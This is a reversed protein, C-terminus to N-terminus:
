STGMKRFPLQAYLFGGELRRNERSGARPLSEARPNKTHPRKQTHSNGRTSTEMLPWQFDLSSSAWGMPVYKSVMATKRLLRHQSGKHQNAKRSPPFKPVGVPGKRALPAFDHRNKAQHLPYIPVKKFFCASVEQEKRGERRYYPHLGKNEGLKGGSSEELFVM